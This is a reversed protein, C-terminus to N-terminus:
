RPRTLSVLQGGHFEITGALALEMIAVQVVQAPLGTARAVEDIAIPAPGLVSEVEALADAPLVRGATERLAIDGGGVRDAMSSSDLAASRPMTQRDLVALVDEPSTAITAGSKLLMNTGEARPDLPHGPVAFVERGQENALRATILTGSRRAAEVIVVARALGSIIRNRRPFDQARAQFGLPQETVLCGLEGIEAHLAKHEPPYVVDIGGALVAITGTPLAAQHAIGDIGRALGSAIVHGAAGITAAFQRAMTMGGASSQRSGVIAVVSGGLLDLRGKAYLMPPAGELFALPAPYGPEITFLIHAGARRAAEIEAEAV